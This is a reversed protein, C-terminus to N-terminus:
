RYMNLWVNRNQCLINWKRQGRAVGTKRLADSTLYIRLTQQYVDIIRVHGPKWLSGVSFAMTSYLMQRALRDEGMRGLHGIWRMRRRQTFCAINPTCCREYLRANSVRDVLRIGLIRRLCKRHFVELRDLQAATLGWAESGYLLVSMVLCNLVQIRTRIAICQQQFFPSQLRRFAAMSLQIRYSLEDDM